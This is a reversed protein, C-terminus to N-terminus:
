VKMNYPICIKNSIYWTSISYLIVISPCNFYNRTDSTKTAVSTYIYIQSYNCAIFCDMHELAINQCTCNAM